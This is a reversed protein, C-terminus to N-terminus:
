WCNQWQTGDYCKLKNDNNDFYLDGKSPNAPASNQPELKMATSVHVSRAPTATGFGTNGNADIHLSATPAGQEIVIAETNSNTVDVFSLKANNAQVDWIQPTNADSGDQEFRITPNTGNVLHLQKSPNDTGLGINNSKIYFAHDVGPAEIMFPYKNATVDKIAFYNKGGQAASNIEIMWDNNPFTASNSTDDFLMRIIDDQLVLTNFQFDYNYEANRGVSMSGQVILDEMRVFDDSESGPNGNTEITGTGITKVQSNQDIYQFAGRGDAGATTNYYLLGKTNSQNAGTFAIGGHVKMKAVSPDVADANGITVSGSNYYIDTGSVSWQDIVLWESGNYYYFANNGLPGNVTVYILLGNAPNAPKNNYDIRPILIGKSASEVDLM